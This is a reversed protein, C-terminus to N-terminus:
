RVRFTTQGKERIGPAKGRPGTSKATSTDIRSWYMYMYRTKESEERHSFLDFRKSICPFVSTAMM